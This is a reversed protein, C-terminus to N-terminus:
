GRDSDGWGLVQRLTAVREEDVPLSVGWLRLGGFSASGLLRLAELEELSRAATSFSLRFRHQLDSVRVQPRSLCYSRLEAAAGAGASDVESPHSRHALCGPHRCPVGPPLNTPSTKSPNSQRRM